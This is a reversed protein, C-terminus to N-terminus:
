FELFDLNEHGGFFEIMSSHWDLADPVLYSTSDDTGLRSQTRPEGNSYTFGDVGEPPMYMTQNNTLSNQGTQAPPVDGHQAPNPTMDGASMGLPTSDIERVNGVLEGGGGRSAISGTRSKRRRITPPFYIAFRRAIEFDKATMEQSKELMTALNLLITGLKWVESFRRLILKTIEQHQSWLKSQINDPEDGPVHTPLMTCAIFPHALSVFEPSWRTIIRSINTARSRLQSVRALSNHQSLPSVAVTSLHSIMVDCGAMMLHTSIIWNSRPFTNADFYFTGTELNFASPLSLKFCSFANELELREEASIVDRRNTLDHLIAMLFNAILFWAREDQNECHELSKWAKMPDDELKGSSVPTGAFWAEDSAPLLVAIWRRDISYPRMSVTSGFTDLEWVLWFARRLEERRVWDETDGEWDEEDVRSLDLDYALRVCVGSLIWGKACPGSAYWYFALLICGQLYLLNPPDVAMRAEEYLIRAEEAYQHSREFRDLGAFALSNSHRAALAFICKFLLREEVSLSDLDITKGLPGDVYKEYFRPRHLLPLWAQISCFYIDILERELETYLRRAPRRTSDTSKSPHLVNHPVNANGLSPESQPPQPEPNRDQSETSFAEQSSVETSQMQVERPSTEDQHSNRSSTLLTKLSQDDQLKSELITMLDRFRDISASALPPRPAKRIQPNKRKTPFTCSHGVRQCLSCKPRRMDCKVKKRNCQLCARRGQIGGQISLSSNEQEM